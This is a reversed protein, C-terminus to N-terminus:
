TGWNRKKYLPSLLKRGWPVSRLILHIWVHLTGLVTDTVYDTSHFQGYNVNNYSNNHSASHGTLKGNPHEEQDSIFDGFWPLPQARGDGTDPHGSIRYFSDSGTIVLMANEMKDLPIQWTGPVTSPRSSVFTLSVHDKGEFTDGYLLSVFPSAYLRQSVCICLFPYGTKM